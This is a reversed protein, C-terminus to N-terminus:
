QYVDLSPNHSKVARHSLDAQQWIEHSFHKQDPATRISDASLVSSHLPPTISHGDDEDENENEDEFGQRTAVFSNPIEIEVRAVRHIELVLVLVLVLVLSASHNTVPINQM